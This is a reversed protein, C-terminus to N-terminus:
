LLVLTVGANANLYDRDRALSPCSDILLRASANFPSFDEGAVYAKVGGERLKKELLRRTEARIAGGKGSSGYGHIIKLAIVRKAKATRLAQELRQRAIEVTPMGQELNVVTCGM